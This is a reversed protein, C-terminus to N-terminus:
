QAMLLSALRPNSSCARVLTSYVRLRVSRSSTHIRLAVLIYPMYTLLFVLGSPVASRAMARVSAGCMVMVVTVGGLGVTSSNSAFSSSKNRM